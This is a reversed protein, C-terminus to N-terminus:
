DIFDFNKFCFEKKVEDIDTSSTKTGDEQKIQYELMNLASQSTEM